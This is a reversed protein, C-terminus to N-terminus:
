AASPAMDGSRKLKSKLRNRRWHRIEQKLFEAVNAKDAIDDVGLISPDSLYLPNTDSTLIVLRSNEALQKLRPVNIQANINRRMHNDLCILDFSRVALTEIADICWAAYVLEFNDRTLHRLTREVLVSEEPDDDVLLVRFM